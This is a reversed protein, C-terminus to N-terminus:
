LIIWLSRQSVIRDQDLKHLGVWDRRFALLQAFRENSSFKEMCHHRCRICTKGLMARVFTEGNLKCRFAKATEEKQKLTRKRRWKQPPLDDVEGGDSDSLEAVAHFPLPPPPVDDDADDGSESLARINPFASMYGACQLFITFWLCWTTSTESNNNFTNENFSCHSWNALKFKHGRSCEFALPRLQNM